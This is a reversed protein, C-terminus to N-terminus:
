PACPPDQSNLIGCVHPIFESSLLGDDSFAEPDKLEKRFFYNNVM